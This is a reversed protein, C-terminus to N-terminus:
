ARALPQAEASSEPEQTGAVEERDIDELRGVIAAVDGLGARLRLLELRVSELQGIRRHLRSDNAARAENIEEVVGRRRETLDATSKIDPVAATDRLLEDLQRGRARLEACEDEFRRVSAAMPALRQQTATDLEGLLHRVAGALMVEPARMSAAVRSRSLRLAALNFIMRGFRGRWLGNWLGPSDPRFLAALTRRALAIVM